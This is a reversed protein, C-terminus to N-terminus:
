LLRAESVTGAFGGRAKGGRAAPSAADSGGLRVESLTNWAGCDNCQGQWKAYDSGCDNCVFATKRKAM